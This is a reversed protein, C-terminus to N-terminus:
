KEGKYIFQQCYEEYQKLLEEQNEDCWKTFEEKFKEFPVRDADGYKDNM